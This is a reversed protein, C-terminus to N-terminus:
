EPEERKQIEVIKYSVACFVHAHYKELNIKNTYMKSRM